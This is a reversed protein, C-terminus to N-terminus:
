INYLYFCIGQKNDVKSYRINLTITLLLLMIMGIFIKQAKNNIKPTKIEEEVSYAGKRTKVEEKNNEIVDNFKIVKADKVNKDKKVKSILNILKSNFKIKM